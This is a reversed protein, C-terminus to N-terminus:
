KFIRIRYGPRLFQDQDEQSLYRQIINPGSSYTVDTLDALREQLSMWVTGNHAGKAPGEVLLKDYIDFQKRNFDQNKRLRIEYTLVKDASFRKKLLQQTEARYTEIDEPDDFNNLKSTHSSFEFGCSDISLDTRSRMDRIEIDDHYEYELNDLRTQDPDLNQEPSPLLLYPKEHQYLPLRSLFEIRARVSTM